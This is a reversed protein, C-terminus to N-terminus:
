KFGKIAFMVLAFLMIATGIGGMVIGFVARGMGHKKPNRKMERVALIGTLLAFPAPVCLVSFLALYGAAIAWGSLGVPILMRMAPDQGIDDDDDDRRRRRRPRDDVDDYDDDDRRPRRSRPRDDDDDDDRRSRRASPRDEDDDDDRRRPKDRPDYFSEDREKM